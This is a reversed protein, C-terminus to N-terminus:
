TTPNDLDYHHPKSKDDTSTDEDPKPKTLAKFIALVVGGEILGILTKKIEDGDTISGAMYFVPAIILIILIILDKISFRVKNLDLINM